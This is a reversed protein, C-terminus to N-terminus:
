LKFVLANVGQFTIDLINSGIIVDQNIGDYLYQGNNSDLTVKFKILNDLHEEIQVDLILNSIDISSAKLYSRFYNLINPKFLDITLNNQNIENNLNNRLSIIDNNTFVYENINPKNANIIAITTPPIITALAVISPISISLWLKKANAKNDKKKIAM